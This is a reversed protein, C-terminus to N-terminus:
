AAAKRGRDSTGADVWPDFAPVRGDDSTARLLRVGSYRVGGTRRHWLALWSCVSRELLWCPAVISSLPSFYRRGGHRRRGTEAVAITAATLVVLVAPRRAALLAVPVTLLSVILRQPRAFEDYAQRTRQGVFHGTSPPLRRVFIDPRWVCRGGRRAVSRILELNEFLVDADYGAAVFRRRVVLTGAYDVDTARNLVTRAGDWVTHWRPPDFYNQPMVLDADRLAERVLALTGATYRVDDDAIVVVDTDIHRLGTMVGRVKGNAGEIDAAPAIHRAFTSWEPHVADFVDAPSGDVVVIPLHRSLRRLYSTSESEHPVTSRIPLLYTAEPWADPPPQDCAM